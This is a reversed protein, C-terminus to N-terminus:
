FNLDLISNTHNFTERYMHNYLQTDDSIMMYDINNAICDKINNPSDDILIDIDNTKITPIKSGQVVFIDDIVNGLTENLYDITTNEIDKDRSTIIYIKNGNYAWQFFKDKILAIDHKFPLFKTMADSSKFMEFITRRVEEPYNDMSWNTPSYFEKGNVLFAYKFIVNMDLLVGDLDVGINM